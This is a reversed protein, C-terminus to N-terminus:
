LTWLVACALSLIALTLLVGRIGGGGSANDITDIVTRAPVIRHSDTHRRREGTDLDDIM